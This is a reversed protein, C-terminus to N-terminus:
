DAMEQFMEFWGFDAHAVSKKASATAGDHKRAADL